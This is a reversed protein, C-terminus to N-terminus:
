IIIMITITVMIAINQIVNYHQIENAFENRYEYKKNDIRIM